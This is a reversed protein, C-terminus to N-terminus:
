KVNLLKDLTTEKLADQIYKQLSALKKSVQCKPRHPCSKTDVVCQSFCVDGQIASIVDHLNIKKPEKALEFGGTAGMSSKVLKAASLKQLLKCTIPESVDQNKALQRAPIPQGGYNIALGAILRLAYDTNRRIIDM